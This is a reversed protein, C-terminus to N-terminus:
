AKAVGKLKTVISRIEEATLRPRRDSDIIDKEFRKLRPYWDGPHPLDKPRRPILHIHLHSITQGADKGEQLTLNFGSAHFAKKLVRMMERAFSMAECAEKESLQFLHTAHWKPIILTHGPVIPAINYIAKFNHSHAFVQAQANCFRCSRVIKKKM